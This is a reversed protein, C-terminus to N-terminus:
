KSFLARICLVVMCLFLFHLVCNFEHLQNVFAESETEGHGSPNQGRTEFREAARGLVIVVIVKRVDNTNANIKRFFM